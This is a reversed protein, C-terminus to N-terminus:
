WHDLDIFQVSFLFFFFKCPWMTRSSPRRRLSLSSSLMPTLSSRRPSQLCSCMNAPRYSALPCDIAPQHWTRLNFFKFAGFALGLAAAYITYERKVILTGVILLVVPVYIGDIYKRSFPSESM